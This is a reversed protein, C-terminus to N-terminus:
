FGGEDGRCWESASIRDLAALGALVVDLEPGQCKDAAQQMIRRLEQLGAQMEAQKHLLGLREEYGVLATEARRIVDYVAQRSIGVESAIEALSLDEHYYMTLLDRQKPTLLSGYCDYLRAMRTRKELM